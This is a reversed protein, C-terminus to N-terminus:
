RDNNTNQRTEKKTMTLKMKRMLEAVKSESIGLLKAAESTSTYKEGLLIQSFNQELQHHIHRISNLVIYLIIALLLIPIAWGFSGLRLLVSAFPIFWMSVFITLAILIGDRLMIRLAERRWKRASPRWRLVYTVAEDVLSRLSRWIVIFSPICLMLLIFGIGLGVFDARINELFSLKEIHHLAFTGVGIIVVLILLNIMIIKISHRVKLAAESDRVFVTRLVQLWDAIRSVYVKLLTPARRDMFDAVSDTSRTVYPAVLSTIATSMAIIPSLSSKVAGHEVGSKVIALSFEGMQPMGMGVQLSTRGDHGSILTAITNSFLKGLM